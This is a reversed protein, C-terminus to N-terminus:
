CIFKIVINNSVLLVKHLDLLHKNVLLVKFQLVLLVKHLDLLHKDVEPGQITSGTSSSISNQQLTPISPGTYPVCPLVTNNNVTTNQQFSQPFKCNPYSGSICYATPIKGGNDQTARDLCKQYAFKGTSCTGGFVIRIM